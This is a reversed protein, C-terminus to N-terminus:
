AILKGIAGNKKDASLKEGRKEAIEATWNALSLLVFPQSDTVM